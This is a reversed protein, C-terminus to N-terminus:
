LIRLRMLSLGKKLFGGSIFVGMSFRFSVLTYKNTGYPYPGDFQFNYLMSTNEQDTPPGCDGERIRRYQSFQWRPSYVVLLASASGPASAVTLLVEAALWGISSSRAWTTTLM